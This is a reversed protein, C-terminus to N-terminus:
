VELCFEWKGKIWCDMLLFGYQDFPAELLPIGIGVELQAQELQAALVKGIMSPNDGQYPTKQDKCHEAGCLFRTCEPGTPM